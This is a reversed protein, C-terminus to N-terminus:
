SRTCRIPITTHPFRQPAPTLNCKPANRVIARSTRHNGIPRFQRATAEPSIPPKPVVVVVAVGVVNGVVAVVGTIIGIGIIIDAFAVGEFRPSHHHSRDKVPPARESDRRSYLDVNGNLRRFVISNYNGKPLREPHCERLQFNARWSCDFVQRRRRGSRTGPRPAGTTEPSWPGPRTASM